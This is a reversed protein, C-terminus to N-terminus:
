LISKLRDKFDKVFIIRPKKGGLVALFNERTEFGFEELILAYLSLQLSYKNLDSNVLDDFPYKMSTGRAFFHDDDKFNDDTKWDCITYFNCGERQYICDITGALRYKESFVKQEVAVGQLESFFRNNLLELYAQFRKFVVDNEFTDPIHGTEQHIEIHKHTWTGNQMGTKGKLAWEEKHKNKYRLREAFGTIKEKDAKKELITDADFEPVWEKVKTTVSTLPINGKRYKHAKEEFIFDQPLTIM